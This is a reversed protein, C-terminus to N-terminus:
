VLQARQSLWPSPSYGMGRVMVRSNGCSTCAGPGATMRGHHCASANQASCLKPLAAETRQVQAGGAESAQCMGRGILRGTGVAKQGVWNRMECASVMWGCYITLTVAAVLASFWHQKDNPQLGESYVRQGIKLEFSSESNSRTWGM